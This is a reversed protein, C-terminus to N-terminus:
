LGTRRSIKAKSKQNKDAPNKNRKRRKEKSNSNIQPVPATPSAPFFRRRSFPQGTAAFLPPVSRNASVPCAEALRAALQALTASLFGHPVLPSPRCMYFHLAPPTTTKLDPRAIAVVVMVARLASCSAVKNIALAFRLCIFCLYGFGAAVRLRALCLLRRIKPRQRLTGQAQRLARFALALFVFSAAIFPLLAIFLMVLQTTCRLM